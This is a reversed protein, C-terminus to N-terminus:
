VDVGPNRCQKWQESGECVLGDCCKTATQTCDTYRALCVDDLAGNVLWKMGGLQECVERSENGWTACTKFDHSCCGDGTSPTPAPATPSPVPPLTPNPTPAVPADTPTAVPMETPSPTVVVANTPNPTPAPVPPSTPNSGGGNPIISVEACNIFREPPAAAVFHDPYTPECTPIGRNWHVEDLPQSDSNAGDFYAEYGVPSCSNATFYEWQLLVKDGFIGQPLQFRMVYDFGNADVGGYYYGRDPFAPDKPMGYSVDEVFELKNANFCEQTSDKGMACARVMMHGAHNATLHSHVEIVQGEEYEQQSIWPMAEGTVDLWSDYDIGQESIGCVGQNANLCHACYEAPPVGKVGNNYSVGSTHAYRNRSTPIFMYGHGQVADPVELVLSSLLLTAASTFKM